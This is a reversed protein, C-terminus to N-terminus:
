KTLTEGDYTNILREFHPSSDKFKKAKLFNALTYIFDKGSKTIEDTISLCQMEANFDAEKFSEAILNIFKGQDDSGWNIFMEALQGPTLNIDIEKKM